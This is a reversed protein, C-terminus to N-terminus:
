SGGQAVHCSAGQPVPVRSLTLPGTSDADAVVGNMLASCWAMGFMCLPMQIGGGVVRKM